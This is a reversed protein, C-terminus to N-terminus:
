QVTFDRVWNYPASLKTFFGEGVGISPPVTTGGPGSWTTGFPTKVYIDYQQLGVNWKLLSNPPSGLPINLGINTVSGSDPVLNGTLWLGSPLANTLPGPAYVQSQLVDGVFVNTFSSPSKIFFGEGVNLTVGAIPHNVDPSSWFPAFPSRTLILFKSNPYDWKFVQSALPPNTSLINVLTNPTSTNTVPNAICILQNAAPVVVQYGVTNLSYVNQAM